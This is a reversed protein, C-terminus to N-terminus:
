QQLFIFPASKRSTLVKKKEANPDTWLQPQQQKRKVLREEEQLIKSAIAVQGQRQKALYVRFVNDNDGNDYICIMKMVMMMVMMMMM